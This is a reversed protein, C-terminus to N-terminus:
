ATPPRIRPDWDPQPISLAKRLCYGPGGDDLKLETQGWVGVKVWVESGPDLPRSAKGTKGSVGSQRHAYVFKLPNGYERVALRWELLPKPLASDEPGEEPNMLWYMFQRCRKIQIAAPRARGFKDPRYWNGKGQEGEFNGMIEFSLCRRNFGNATWLYHLLNHLLLIAGNTDFLAHANVKHHSSWKGKRWPRWTFATQHWVVCDLVTWKRKGKRRRRGRKDKVNAKGTLDVFCAWFDDSLIIVPEPEEPEPQEDVEVLTSEFPDPLPDREEDDDDTEHDVDYGPDDVKEAPQSLVHGFFKFFAEWFNM